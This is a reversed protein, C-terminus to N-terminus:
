SASPLSMPALLDCRGPGMFPLFPLVEEPWKHSSGVKWIGGVGCGASSEVQLPSFLYGKVEKKELGGWVRHLSPLM